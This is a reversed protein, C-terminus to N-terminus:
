SLTTDFSSTCRQPSCIREKWSTLNQGVLYTELSSTLQGWHFVSWQKYTLVQRTAEEVCPLIEGSSYHKKIERDSNWWQQQRPFNQTSGLSCLAWDRFPSPATTPAMPLLNYSPLRPWFCVSCGRAAVAKKVWGETANDKEEGENGKRGKRGRLERDEKFVIRSSLNTGKLCLHCRDLFGNWLMKMWYLDFVLESLSHCKSM